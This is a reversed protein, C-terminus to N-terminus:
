TGKKMQMKLHDWLLSATNREPRCSFQKGVAFIAPAQKGSPKAFSQVHTQVKTPM